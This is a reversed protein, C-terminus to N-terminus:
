QARVRKGLRDILFLYFFGVLLLFFFIAIIWWVCGMYPLGETFGFAGAPSGWNLFFYPYHVGESFEWGAAYGIGAYVAYALPPLLTLFVSKKPVRGYAGVLLFDAVAALPVVVHTLVNPLSWAAKGLVPALVLCFVTGTLTISVAGILQLVLWRRGVAGSKALLVGGILSLLAVAINSQITFYMFVRSGGMFARRGAAASMVVGVAASLVVACKLILSVAKVRAPLLYGSSQKSNM